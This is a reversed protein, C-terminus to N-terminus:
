MASSALVRVEFKTENQKECTLLCPFATASLNAFNALYEGKDVSNTQHCGRVFIHKALGYGPPTQFFFFFDELSYYPCFLSRSRSVYDM